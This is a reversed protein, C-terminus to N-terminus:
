AVPVILKSDNLSITKWNRMVGHSAVFPNIKETSTPTTPLKRGATRAERRGTMAASLDIQNRVFDFGLPHTYPSRRCLAAVVASESSSFNGCKGTREEFATDREAQGRLGFCDCAKALNM